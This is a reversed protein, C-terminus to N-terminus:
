AASVEVLIVQRHCWIGHSVKESLCSQSEYEDTEHRDIKKMGMLWALMHISVVKFRQEDDNEQEHVSPLVSFLSSYVAPRTTEGAAFSFLAKRVFAATAVFWVLANELKLAHITCVM